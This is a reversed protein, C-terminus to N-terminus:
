ALHESLTLEAHRRCRAERTGASSSVPLLETQWESCAQEAFDCRPAFRCGIATMGMLRPPSGSITALEEDRPAAAPMSRLLAATYPHKPHELLERTPASEVIQGAYMVCVRDCTRGIVALDHSILILSMGRSRQLDLLLQLIQDQIIVDLATTPEDAVLVDPDGALAIAILTRQLMGGSFEHPYARRRQEPAPIGVQRMLELVRAERDRRSLRSRAEVAEEIQHGIRHVPDLSTMPNQPIMAIRDGWYRRLRERPLDFINEEGAGPYTVSGTSQASPTPRLGLMARSTVTKGSGTEGVIGLVEARRVDVSVDDTPIVTGASTPISMRFNRMRVTVSEAQRRDEDPSPLPGSTTQQNSM